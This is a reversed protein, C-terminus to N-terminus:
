KGSFDSPQKPFSALLCHGIGYHGSSSDPFPEL